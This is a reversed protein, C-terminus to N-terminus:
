QSEDFEYKPFSEDFEPGVPVGWVPRGDENLHTKANKPYGALHDPDVPSNKPRGTGPDTTAKDEGNEGSEGGSPRKTATM